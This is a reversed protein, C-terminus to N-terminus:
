YLYKDKRYILIDFAIYLINYLIKGPAYMTIWGNYHKDGVVAALAGSDQMARVKDVFSCEGREILAIWNETPPTVPNCGFREEENTPPLLRGELGKETLRPGFAAVRDIYTENTAKKKPLNYHASSHRKRINAM